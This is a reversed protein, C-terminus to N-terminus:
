REIISQNKERKRPNRMTRKHIRLKWPALENKYLIHHSRIAKREGVRSKSEERAAYRHNTDVSATHHHARRNNASSTSPLQHRRLITFFFGAAFNSRTCLYRHTSCFSFISSSMLNRRHHHCHVTKQEYAVSFLILCPRFSSLLLQFKEEKIVCKKKCNNWENSDSKEDQQQYCDCRVKSCFFLFIPTVKMNAKRLQSM